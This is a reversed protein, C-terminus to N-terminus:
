GRKLLYRDGQIYCRTTQYIQVAMKSPDLGEVLSKNPKVEWSVTKKMIVVVLVVFIM